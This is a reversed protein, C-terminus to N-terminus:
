FSRIGKQRMRNASYKCRDSKSITHANDKGWEVMQRLYRFQDFCPFNLYSELWDLHDYVAQPEWGTDAFVAYDPPKIEKHHALLAMATSQVGAGLSIISM